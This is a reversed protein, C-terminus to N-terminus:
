NNVAPMRVRWRRRAGGTSRTASIPTRSACARAFSGRHSVANLPDGGGGKSSPRSRGQHARHRRRSLSSSNPSLRVRRSVLAHAEPVCANQELQRSTQPPSSSHSSLRHGRHRRHAFEFPRFAKLKITLSDSDSFSGFGDGAYAPGRRSISRSVTLSSSRHSIVTATAASLHATSRSDMRGFGRPPPSSGLPVGRRAESSM